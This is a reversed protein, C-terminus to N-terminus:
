KKFFTLGKSLLDYYKINRTNTPITNKEVEDISIDNIEENDVVCDDNVLSYSPTVNKDSTKQRLKELRQERITMNAAIVLLVALPDFVFIIIVIVWRVAKDIIEDDSSGYVFEAVYKIPGVESEIKRLTNEISFREEILSVKKTELESIETEIIEIQPSVDVTETVTIRSRLQTILDTSEKVLPELSARLDIIRTENEVIVSNLSVIENEARSRYSDIAGRTAPGLNGDVRVGVLAQLRNVDNSSLYSDLLKLNEEASRKKSAAENIINQLRDIDPQIRSYVADINSQEANIQSQILDFQSSEKTSLKQIDSEKREISNDIRLIEESIQEIKAVFQTASGTQEIHARSLFGFIGMSTIFMLVFVALTFYSKMLFPIHKWNTYLWSATVLKAVELTAGMIIVPISAAAFLMALGVISYYGAVASITLAVLLIFYGNM